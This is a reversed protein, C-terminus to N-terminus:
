KGKNKSSKLELIRKFWFYTFDNISHMEHEVFKFM